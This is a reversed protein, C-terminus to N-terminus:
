APEPEAAPPAAPAIAEDLLARLETLDARLEALETALTQLTPAPPDAPEPAPPTEPPFADLGDVTWGPGVPSDPELRALSLGEPAQFAAPHEPDYDDPLELVNHVLGDDDHLAARM